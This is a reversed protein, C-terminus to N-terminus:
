IEGAARLKATLKEIGRTTMGIALAMKETSMGSLAMSRVALRNRIIRASPLDVSAGHGQVIGRRSTEMASFSFHDCIRRSVNIGAIRVLWHDESLDRYALYVRTGGKEAAIALAVERGAIDAIESLAGPLPIEDTSRLRAAMILNEGFALRFV